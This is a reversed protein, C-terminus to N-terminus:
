RRQKRDPVILGGRADNDPKQAGFWGRLRLWSEDIEDLKTSHLMINDREGFQEKLEWEYIRITFDTWLVLLSGPHNEAWECAARVQWEATDGAGYSMGGYDIILLDLHKGQVVHMGNGECVLDIDLGEERLFRAITDREEQDTQGLSSIPDNIIGTRIKM